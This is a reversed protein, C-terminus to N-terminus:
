PAPHKELPHRYGRPKAFTTRTPCSAALSTQLEIMENARSAHGCRRNINLLPEARECDSQQDVDDGAACPKLTCTSQITARADMGAGVLAPCLSARTLLLNDPSSHSHGLLNLPQWQHICDSPRTRSTQELALLYALYQFWLHVCIPRRIRCPRGVAKQLPAIYGHEDAYMQPKLEKGAESLRVPGM